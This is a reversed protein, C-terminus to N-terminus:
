LFATTLLVVMGLVAVGITVLALILVVRRRTWWALGLVVGPVVVLGVLTSLNVVRLARAQEATAEANSEPGVKGVAYLWFIPIMLWLVILALLVVSLPARRWSFPAPAPRVAM